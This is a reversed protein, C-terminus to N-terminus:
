PFYCSVSTKAAERFGELFAKEAADRDRPLELMIARNLRKTFFAVLESDKKKAAEGAQRGADKYSEISNLM